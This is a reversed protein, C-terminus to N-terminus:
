WPEGRWLYQDWLKAVKKVHAAEMKFGERAEFKEKFEKFAVDEGCSLIYWKRNIWGDQYSIEYLNERNNKM